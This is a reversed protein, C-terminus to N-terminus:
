SIRKIRIDKGQLSQTIQLLEKGSCNSVDIKTKNDVILFIM